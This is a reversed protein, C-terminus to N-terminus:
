QGIRLLEYALGFWGKRGKGIGERLGRFIESIFM